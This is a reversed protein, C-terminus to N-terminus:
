LLLSQHHWTTHQAAGSTCSHQQSLRWQESCFHGLLACRCYVNTYAFAQLYQPTSNSGQGGHYLNCSWKVHLGKVKTYKKGRYIVTCNLTHTHAYCALDERWTLMRSSAPYLHHNPSSGVCLRWFCFHDNFCLYAIIVIWVQLPSLYCCTSWYPADLAVGVCLLNGCVFFVWSLIFVVFYSASLWIFTAYIFLWFVCLLLLCCM